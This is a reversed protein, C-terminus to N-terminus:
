QGHAIVLQKHFFSYKLFNIHRHQLSREKVSIFEVDGTVEKIVIENEATVKKSGAELIRGVQKRLCEFFYLIGPRKLLTEAAIM